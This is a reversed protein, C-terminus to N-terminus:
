AAQRRRAIGILALLGSGFLWVAAPVPIVADAGGMADIVGFIQYSGGAALEISFSGDCGATCSDSQTGFVEILSFIDVLTVPDDYVDVMASADASGTPDAVSSADTTLAWQFALTVAENRTNNLMIDLNTRVTSEVFGDSVSGSTSASQSFGGVDTLTIDALRYDNTASGNGSIRDDELSGTATVTWGSPASSNLISLTFDSTADYSSAATASPAFGLGVAGLAIAAAVSQIDNVLKIKM